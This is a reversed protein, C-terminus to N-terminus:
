FLAILALWHVFFFPKQLYIKILDLRQESCVDQAADDLSAAASQFGARNEQETPGGASKPWTSPLKLATADRAQVIIDTM